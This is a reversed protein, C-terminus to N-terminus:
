IKQLVSDVAKDQIYHFRWLSFLIFLQISDLYDFTMYHIGDKYSNDNNMINEKVLEIAFQKIEESSNNNIDWLFEEQFRYDLM